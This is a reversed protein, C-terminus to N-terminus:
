TGPVEHSKICGHFRDAFRRFTIADLQWGEYALKSNWTKREIDKIPYDACVNFNQHDSRVPPTWAVPYAANLRVNSAFVGPEFLAM